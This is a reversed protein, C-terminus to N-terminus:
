EFYLAIPKIIKMDNNLNLQNIYFEQWVNDLSSFLDSFSDKKNKEKNIADSLKSTYQGVIKIKSSYNFRIEKLCERLYKDNIIILLDNALIFKSYPLINNAISFIRRVKKQEEITSKRKAKNITQSATDTIATDGMFNIFEDTYIELIYELDRVLFDSEESIYEGIKVKDSSVLLNNEVLYKELQDFANDHLMKEILERGSEIQSLTNTTTLTDKDESFIMKVLPIGMNTTFSTKGPLDTETKESKVNDTVEKVHNKLLGENIQSLYSNLIDLDLYVFHKM